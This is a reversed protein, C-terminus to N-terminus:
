YKNKSVIVKAQDYTFQQIERAIRIYNDDINTCRQCVVQEPEPAPGTEAKAYISVDEPKVTKIHGKLSQSAHAVLAAVQRDIEGMTEPKLRLGHKHFLSAVKIKQIIM